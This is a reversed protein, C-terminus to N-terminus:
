NSTELRRLMEAASDRRKLEGLATEMASPTLREADYDLWTQTDWIEIKDGMALLTVDKELKARRRLNPPISLRGQGDLQVETGCSLYRAVDDAAVETFDIGALIEQVVDWAEQAWFVLSHGNFARTLFGGHHFLVQCKRPINIRGKDDIQHTSEGRVYIHM